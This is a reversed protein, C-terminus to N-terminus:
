RALGNGATSPGREIQRRRRHQSREGEHPRPQRATRGPRLRDKEIAQAAAGEVAWVHALVGASAMILRRARKSM